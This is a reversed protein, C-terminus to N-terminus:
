NEQPNEENAFQWAALVAIVTDDELLETHEEPTTIRLALGTPTLTFLTITGCAICINVDGDGPAGRTAIGSTLKLVYKCAPCPIGDGPLETTTM